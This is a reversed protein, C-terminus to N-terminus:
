FYREEFRAAYMNSGSRMLGSLAIDEKALLDTMCTICSSRDSNRKACALGGRQEGVSVIRSNNALEPFVEIKAVYRFYCDESTM